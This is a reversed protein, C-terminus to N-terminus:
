SSPALHEWTWTMRCLLATLGLSLQLRHATPPLIKLPMCANDQISLRRLEYGSLNGSLTFTCLMDEPCGATRRTSHRAFAIVYVRAPLM